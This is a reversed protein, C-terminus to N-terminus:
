AFVLRSFYLSVIWNPRDVIESIKLDACLSCLIYADESSVGHRRGLLDIMHRVADAAGKMLDSGIGTTVYYGAADLHRSVPGPTVFEPSVLNATKILGVEAIVQMATELGTGCVEGDGQAAHGDGFSLLGGSVEVPLYLEAGPGIDRIDMTGGVRRPCLIDHPGPASPALGVSGIMAKLPIRAATNVMATGHAGSEYTWLRLVPKPFEAALLGFGPIIASWGWGAHNLERIVVKIADGPEAGDIYIPGTVPNVREFDLAAVDNATSEKHIQGGGPDLTEIEIRDGPAIRLVPAINKDWNWHHNIGHITHMM